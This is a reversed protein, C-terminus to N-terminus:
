DFLVLDVVGKQTFITTKLCISYIITHAQEFSILNSESTLSFHCTSKHKVSTPNMTGGQIGSM